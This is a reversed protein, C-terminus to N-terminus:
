LFLYTYGLRTSTDQFGAGSSNIERKWSWMHSSGKKRWSLRTSASAGGGEDDPNTFTINDNSTSPTFSFGFTFLYSGQHINTLNLGVYPGALTGRDDTLISDGYSVTHYGGALWFNDGLYYGMGLSISNRWGDDFVLPDNVITVMPSADVAFDFFYNESVSTVGLEISPGVEFREQEFSELSVYSVRSVGIGARYIMQASVSQSFSALLLVAVITFYSKKM